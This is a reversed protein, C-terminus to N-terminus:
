NDKANQPYIHEVQTTKDFRINISNLPKIKEIYYRQFIFKYVDNKREKLNRLSVFFEETNEKIFEDNIFENKKIFEEFDKQKIADLCNDFFNDFIGSQKKKITVTRFFSLIM